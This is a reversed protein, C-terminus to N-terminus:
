RRPKGLHKGPGKAVLDWSKEFGRMHLDRSIQKILQIAIAPGSALRKALQISKPVVDEVPVVERVVGYHLAEEASLPEGLLLMDMAKGPPLYFPTWFLGGDLPILGRRVYVQIFRASEAAIRFDCSFALDCGAGAAVGNVAAVTPKNMNFIQKHIREGTLRVPNMREEASLTPVNWIGREKNPGHERMFHPRIPKEGAMAKIDGGGSFSTGAGTIVLAKDDPNSAILDLEITFEEMMPITWPNLKEPMDMTLLVIGDDRSVSIYEYEM